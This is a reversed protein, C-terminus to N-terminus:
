RPLWMAMALPLRHILRANSIAVMAMPILSIKKQASLGPPHRIDVVAYFRAYARQGPLMDAHSFRSACPVENM